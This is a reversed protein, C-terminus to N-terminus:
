KNTNLIQNRVYNSREEDSKFGTKLLDPFFFLKLVIFIIFLKILIILWIKKGWSSMDRFGEYYFLFINRIANSVM